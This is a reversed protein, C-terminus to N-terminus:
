QFLRINISSEPDAIDFTVSENPGAKILRGIKHQSVFVKINGFDTKGDLEIIRLTIQKGETKGEFTVQIKDRNETELITEGSYEVKNPDYVLPELDFVADPMKIQWKLKGCNEPTDGEIVAHGNEDTIYERGLEPLQVMVCSVLDPDDSILQLYDHDRDPDRMVRLVVEPDESYLTTLNQVTPSPKEQGDAALLVASETEATTLPFLPIVNAKMAQRFIRNALELAAPPIKENKARNLSDLLLRYNECFQRCFECDELHDKISEVESIDLRREVFLKLKDKPPHM